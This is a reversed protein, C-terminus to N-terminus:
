PKPLRRRKFTPNPVQVANSPSGEQGIVFLWLGTITISGVLVAALVSKYAVRRSTPRVEVEELNVAEESSIAEEPQRETTM